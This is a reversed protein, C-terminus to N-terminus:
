EVVILADTVGHGTLKQTLQDSAEVSAVPGIRVRYVRTQSDTLQSQIFVPRFAARELRTRLQSANDWEKFAGVQLYLKPTGAITATPATPAPAPETAADGIPDLRPGRDLSPGTAANAPPIIEVLPRSPSSVRGLEVGPSGAAAVLTNGQSADIAEIEVIGTGTGVIGLRSAAAYSLDILRNHLFPGRDNVRVTVSRGNELNRVRVYSPLPLTKHAATMAYMDYTEGSSARRGHFKKGYWSAIGRERYGAASALPAYQKGYVSYPKNGSRALPEPRPTADPVHSVDPVRADPGDDEFYGGPRPGISCGAIHLLVLTVYLSARIGRLRLSARLPGRPVQKWSRGPLISAFMLWRSM